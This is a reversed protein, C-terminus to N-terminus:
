RIARYRDEALLARVADLNPTAVPAVAPPLAVGASSSRVALVKAGEYAPDPVFALHDMWLNLLRRKSRGEWREGGRNVRFGASVDLVGDDALTLTEDGLPTPSVKVDAVLGDTRSTHWAVAKGMTRSLDHDRNAKVRGSRMEIGSFAAPDCVEVIIRGHYEVATEEDYPMAVVTITRAPFDVAVPQASHRVELEPRDPRQEAADSM